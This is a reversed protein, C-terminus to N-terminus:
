VQSWVRAKQEWLKNHGKITYNITTGRGMEGETTNHLGRVCNEAREYGLALELLKKLDLDDARVCKREM